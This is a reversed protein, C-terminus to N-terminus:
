DEIELLVQGAEKEGAVEGPYSASQARGEQLWQRLYQINERQSVSLPVQRKLSIVVDETTIERMQDSFALYMADIIAQEIEAGVYGDSEKVLRKIDFDRPVRNRRKLHTIFIER